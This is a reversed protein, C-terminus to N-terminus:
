SSSSPKSSHPTFASFNLNLLTFSLSSFKSTGSASIKQAMFRITDGVKFDSRALVDSVIVDYGKWKALYAVFKNDGDMASFVKVVPADVTEYSSSTGTPSQTPKTFASQGGFLSDKLAAGNPPTFHFDNATLNPNSIDIQTETSSGSPGGSKLANKATQM